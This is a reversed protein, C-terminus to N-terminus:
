KTLDIKKKISGERSPDDAHNTAYKPNWRMLVNNSKKHAGESKNSSKGGDGSSSSSSHNARRRVRIDTKESTKSPNKAAQTKRYEDQAAAAAKVAEDLLDRASRFHLSSIASQVSDTTPTIANTAFSMGGMGMSAVLETDNTSEKNLSTDINTITEDIPVLIAGSANLPSHPKEEVNVLPTDVQQILEVVIAKLRNKRIGIRNQPAQLVKLSGDKNRFINVNKEDVEDFVRKKRFFQLQGLVSLDLYQNSIGTKKKQQGVRNLSDVEGLIIDITESFASSFLMRTHLLRGLPFFLAFCAQIFLLFTGIATDIAKHAARTGGRLSQFGLIQTIRSAWVFLLVYAVVAQSITKANSYWGLSTGVVLVAGLSGFGAALSLVQLAISQIRRPPSFTTSTPLLHDRPQSSVLPQRSSSLLSIFQLIIISVFPAATFLILAIMEEGAAAKLSLILMSAPILMRSVRLIRFCKAFLSANKYQSGAEKEYWVKWNKETIDSDAGGLWAYFDTFDDQVSKWELALPSFWLCGFLLSCTFLWATLFFFIYVRVSEFVGLATTLSLLLLLEFGLYLHSHATARFNEAFTTHRIVFDRGTSVYSAKGFTLASDFYYAKTAIESMFFVPGLMRFMNITRLIASSFGDELAHLAFLPIISLLGLQVIWQLFSIDGVLYVFESALIAFDAGTLAMSTLYYVTVTLSIIILVNSVYFGGSTHFFSLLRAFDMGDCIRFHDRTTMAIATGGSIKSEFGAIQLFGVDRGKGVALFECHVSEGGRLMVSFGAFIDESVNVVASAKAQGGRAFLFVKDGLDPHGYHMRVHLPSSMVRQMLVGFLYEQQSMFYASASLTHTYIHERLGVLVIPKAIPGNCRKLKSTCLLQMANPIKLAEEFYADQNMDIMQIVRGRVFPAVNNQNEPKGEGIGDLIPNGPCPIRFKVGSCGKSVTMLRRTACVGSVSSEFYAISLLPHLLLLYDIDANRAVDEEQHEAYRQVAISYSFHEGAFWVAAKSADNEIEDDTRIIISGDGGEKHHMRRKEIEFYELELQLTALLRIARANQMIGEITRGLTQGRCSAWMRIEMEGSIPNDLADVTAIWAETENEVGLRECLNLWEIGHLSKLYVLPSVGHKNPCVLFTERTYLVPEAYHPTIVTLSPIHLPSDSVPMQKMYLSNIFWVVRREAESVSLEGNARVMTLLYYVRRACDLLADFRERTAFDGDADLSGSSENPLSLILVLGRVSRTTATDQFSLRPDSPNVEEHKEQTDNALDDDGGAISEITPSIFSGMMNNIPRTPSVAPTFSTQEGFIWGLFTPAKRVLPPLFAGINKEDICRLNHLRSLLARAYILLPSRKLRTTATDSEFEVVLQASLYCLERAIEVPDGGGGGSEANGTLIQIVADRLSEGKEARLSFLAEVTKDIFRDDNGVSSHSKCIHILIHPLATLVEKAANLTGLDSCIADIFAGDATSSLALELVTQANLTLRKLKGAYLFLPLDNEVGLVGDGYLLRCQEENSILDSSRLSMVFGDWARRFVTHADVGVTKAIPLCRSIFQEALPTKKKLVSGVGNIFSEKVATTGGHTFSGLGDIKCVYYGVLPVLLIFMIYSDVAVLSAITLWSGILILGNDFGFAKFSFFKMYSLNAMQLTGVLRVQQTMVHLDFTMKGLLVVIWFLSYVLVRSPTEVMHSTGLVVNALTNRKVTTSSISPRTSNEGPPTANLASPLSKKFTQFSVSPIPASDYVAEMERLFGVISKFVQIPLSCGGDLLGFPSFMGEGAMICILKVGILLFWIPGGFLNVGLLTRSSAIVLIAGAWFLAWILKIIALISLGSPLSQLFRESGVPPMHHFGSIAIRLLHAIVVTEFCATAEILMTIPDAKLIGLLNIGGSGVIVTAVAFLAHFLVAEFAFYRWFSLIVAAWSAKERFSKPITPISQRLGKETDLCHYAFSLCEPKWFLENLDDYNPRESNKIDVDDVRSCCPAFSSRTAPRSKRSHRKLIEYLPSITTKAFFSSEPDDPFSNIAEESPPQISNRMQHFLWCLLEPCFRFNASESRICYFLCLEYLKTDTDSGDSLFQGDSSAGAPDSHVLSAGTMLAWLNFNEFSELHLSIIAEKLSPVIPGGKGTLDAVLAEVASRASGQPGSQFGFRVRVSELMSAVNLVADRKLIWLKLVHGRLFSPAGDVNIADDMPDIGENKIDITNNSHLGDSIDTQEYSELAVPEINDDVVARSISSLRRTHTHNHQM